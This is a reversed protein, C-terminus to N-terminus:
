EGSLERRLDARVADAAEDILAQAQEASLDAFAAQADKLSQDMLRWRVADEVYTSVDTSPDATQALRARLAADTSKTVTVTWTTTAETPM